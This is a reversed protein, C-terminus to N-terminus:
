SFQVTWVPLFRSTPKFRKPHWFFAGSSGPGSWDEMILDDGLVARVFEKGHSQEAFLRRFAFACADALQLLPGDAKSVFHVTDRVREIKHVAEQLSMGRSLEEQTPKLHEPGLQMAETFQPDRLAKLVLRMHEKVGDVDEAVVTAVEFEGAYDRIYKDAKAICHFFAMLHQFKEKPMAVISPIEWSRRVIGITVALGLERPIAMMRKLYELRDEFPWAERLSHDGWVSKAHFVFDGRLEPPVMQLLQQLRQEALVYQQDAHVIIGAVVSVPEKASTGAEDLYIYRM